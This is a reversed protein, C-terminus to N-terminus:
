GRKEFAVSTVGAGLGVLLWVAYSVLSSGGGGCGSAGSGYPCAFALSPVAFPLTALVWFAFKM